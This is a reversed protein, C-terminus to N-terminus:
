CPHSHAASHELTDMFLRGAETLTGGAPLLSAEIRGRLAEWEEPKERSLLRGGEVRSILVAPRPDRQLGGLAREARWDALQSLGCGPDDGGIDTTHDHSSFRLWLGRADLRPLHARAKILAGLTLAIAQAGFRVADESPDLHGGDGLLRDLRLTGSEFARTVLFSDRSVLGGGRAGVALPEPTGIGNARLYCLLNWHREAVSLSRPSGFRLGLLRGLPVRRWRELLVWGTGAGRPAETRKAGEASPTGPLPMRLCEWFDSSELVEARPRPLPADLLEAPEEVGLSGLEPLEPALRVRIAKVGQPDHGTQGNTREM